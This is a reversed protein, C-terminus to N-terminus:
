KWNYLYEKLSVSCNIGCTVTSTVKLYEPEDPDPVTDLPFFETSVERTFQAATVSHAYYSGDFNLYNGSSCAQDLGNSNYDVCGTNTVNAGSSDNIGNTWCSSENFCNAAVDGVNYVKGQMWNRDRINRIVEIGEQALYAAIIKNKVRAGVFFSQQIVFIAASIGVTFVAIAVLSEVLTFGKEHFMFCSVHFMSRKKKTGSKHNYTELKM